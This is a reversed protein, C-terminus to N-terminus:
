ITPYSTGRIDPPTKSERLKRAKWDEFRKQGDATLPVALNSKMKEIPPIPKGPFLERFPKDGFAIDEHTPDVLVMGSVEHPYEDRM